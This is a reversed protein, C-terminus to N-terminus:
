EQSEEELLLEELAPTQGEHEAAEMRMPRSTLGREGAHKM